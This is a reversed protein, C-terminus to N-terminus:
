EGNSEILYKIHRLLDLSLTSMKPKLEKVLAYIEKENETKEEDLIIYTSNAEYSPEIVGTDKHYKYGDDCYVYKRAIKIITLSTAEYERTTRNFVMKTLEQGKKLQEM